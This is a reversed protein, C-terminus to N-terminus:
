DTIDKRDMRIVLWGSLVVFSVLSVPVGEYLLADWQFPLGKGMKEVVDVAKTLYTSFSWKGLGLMDSVPGLVFWLMLTVGVAAGSSTFYSGVLLGLACVPLVFLCTLGIALLVNQWVQGSTYLVVGERVVDGWGLTLAVVLLGLIVSTLVILLAFVVLALLKAGVWHRREIPLVLFTKITGLSFERSIAMSGVVLILFISFQLGWGVGQGWQQPGTVIDLSTSPPTLAQKLMNGTQIALVMFIMLYPYRQTLLKIAEQRSLETLM